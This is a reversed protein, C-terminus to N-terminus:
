ITTSAALFLDNEFVIPVLRRNGLNAVQFSEIKVVRVNEFTMVTLDNAIPSSALIVSNCTIRAFQVHSLLIQMRCLVVCCFIHDIRLVSLCFRKSLVLDRPDFRRTKKNCHAWAKHPNNKREHRRHM